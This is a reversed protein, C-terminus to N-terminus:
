ENKELADEVANEIFTQITIGKQACILKIRRLTSVKIRSGLMKTPEKNESKTTEKPTKTIEKKNEVPLTDYFNSRPKSFDAM